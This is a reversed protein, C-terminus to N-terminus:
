NALKPLQSYRGRLMLRKCDKDDTFSERKHLVNRTIIGEGRQLRIHTQADSLAEIMEALRQMAEATAASHWHINRSRMTFRLGPTHDPYNFLVPVHRDPRSHGFEDKNSPLTMAKAAALLKILEPANETVSILLRYPDLLSLTGGSSAPSLCHLTFTRVPEDPPNYYGDTHWNMMKNSYPLFRRQGSDQVDELRSLGDSGSLVGQDSHKLGLRANLQAIAHELDRDEVDGHELDKDPFTADAFKYLGFGQQQVAVLLAQLADDDATTDLNLTLRHHTAARQRKSEFDQLYQDRWHPYLGTGPKDPSFVPQSLTNCAPEPTMLAVLKVQQKHSQM